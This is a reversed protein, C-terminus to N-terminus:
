PCNLCSASWAGSGGYDGGGYGGDLALYDYFPGGEPGPVEGGDNGALAEAGNWVGSAFGLTLTDYTAALPGAFRGGGAAGCGADESIQGDCYTCEAWGNELAREVCSLAGSVACSYPLELAAGDVTLTMLGTM